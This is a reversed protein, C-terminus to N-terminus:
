SFRGVVYKREGCKLSWTILIHMKRRCTSWSGCKMIRKGKFLLPAQLPIKLFNSFFLWKYKGVYYGNRTSKKGQTCGSEETKMKRRSSPSWKVSQATRSTICERWSQHHLFTKIERGHQFATKGPCQM